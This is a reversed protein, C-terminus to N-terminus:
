MAAKWAKCLQDILSLKFNIMQHLSQNTKFNYFFTYSRGTSKQWFKNTLQPVDDRRDYTARALKENKDHNFWDESTQLGKHKHHAM